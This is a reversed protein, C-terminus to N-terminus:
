PLVGEGRLAAGRVLVVGIGDGGPKPLGVQVAAQLPEEGGVQRGGFAGHCLYFSPNEAHPLGAVQVGPCFRAATGPVTLSSGPKSSPRSEAQHRVTSPRLAIDAIPRFKDANVPSSAQALGSQGLAPSSVAEEGFV